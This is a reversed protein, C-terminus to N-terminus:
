HGRGKGQQHNLLNQNNSFVSKQTQQSQQSNQTTQTQAQAKEVKPQRQELEKKFKDDLKIKGQEHLKLLHKEAQEIHKDYKNPFKDRIDKVDKNWAERYKGQKLLDKQENRYEKAGERSDYSATARHDEDIMRISPGQNKNLGLVGKYSSKAYLHHAHYNHSGKPYGNKVERWSGGLVETM